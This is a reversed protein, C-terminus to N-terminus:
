LTVQLSGKPIFLQAFSVAGCYWNKLLGASAWPKGGLNHDIGHTLEARTKYM